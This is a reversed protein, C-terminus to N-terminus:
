DLIGMQLNLVSFLYNFTPDYDVFLINPTKVTCLGVNMFGRFDYEMNCDWRQYQMCLFFKRVQLFITVQYYIGTDASLFDAGGFHAM